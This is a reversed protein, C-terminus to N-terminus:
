LRSQEKKPSRLDQWKGAVFAWVLEFGMRLTVLIISLRPRGKSILDRRNEDLDGLWEERAKAPLFVDAFVSIYRREWTEIFYYIGQHAVEHIITSKGVGSLHSPDIVVDLDMNHTPTITTTRVFSDQRIVKMKQLDDGAFEFSLQVARTAALDKMHDVHDSALHSIFVKKIKM